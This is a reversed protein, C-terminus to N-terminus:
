SITENRDLDLCDFIRGLVFNLEPTGHYSEIFTERTIGSKINHNPNKGISLHVLMKYKAYLHHIESEYFSCKKKIKSMGLDFLKPLETDIKVAVQGLKVKLQNLNLKNTTTKSFHTFTKNPIYQTDQMQDISINSLKMSFKNEIQSALPKDIKKLIQNGSLDNIPKFEIDHSVIIVKDSYTVEQLFQYIKGHISFIFKFKKAKNFEHRCKELFTKKEQQKEERSLPRRTIIYPFGILQNNQMESGNEMVFVEKFNLSSKLSIKAPSLSARQHKKPNSSVSIETEDFKIGLQRYKLPSVPSTSSTIISPIPNSCINGTQNYYYPKMSNRRSKDKSERLRLKPLQKTEYPKLKTQTSAFPFINLM